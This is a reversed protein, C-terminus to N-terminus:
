ITEGHQVDTATTKGSRTIGRRPERAQQYDYGNERPGSFQCAHPDNSCFTSSLAHEAQALIMITNSLRLFKMRKAGSADGVFATDEWQNATLPAKSKSSSPSSSASITKDSAPDRLAKASSSSTVDSRSARHQHAAGSGIDASTKGQASGPPPDQASPSFRRKRRPRNSESSGISCSAVNDSPFKLSQSASELARTDKSDPLPPPHSSPEVSPPPPPPVEDVSNEQPPPPPQGPLM